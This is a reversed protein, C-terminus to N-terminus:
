KAEGGQIKYHVRLSGPYPGMAPGLVGRLTPSEGCEFPEKLTQTTLPSLSRIAM